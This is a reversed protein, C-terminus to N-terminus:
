DWWFFWTKGELLTAALGEITGVGQTVIDECYAFHENALALAETQSHPPKDVLM